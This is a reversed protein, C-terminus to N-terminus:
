FGFYFTKVVAKPHKYKTSTIPTSTEQHGGLCLFYHMNNLDKASARLSDEIIKGKSVDVIYSTNVVLTSYQVDFIISSLVFCWYCLFLCFDSVVLWCCCILFIVILLLLDSFSCFDSVALWCLRILFLDSFSCFFCCCMWILLVACDSWFCCILM